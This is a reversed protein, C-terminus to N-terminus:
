AETRAAVASMTRLVGSSAGAPSRTASHSRRLVTRDPHHRSPVASSRAWSASRHAAARWIRSILRQSVGVSGPRHDGGPTTTHEGCPV